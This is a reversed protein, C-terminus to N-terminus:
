SERAPQPQKASLPQPSILHASRRAHYITSPHAGTPTPSRTRAGARAGEQGRSRGRSTIVGLYALVRRQAPRTAAARLPDKGRPRQPRSGRGRGAQATTSRYLSLANDGRRSPSPVASLEGELWVSQAGAFGRPRQRSVMRRLKTSHVALVGFPTIEYLASAGRRIRQAKADQRRKATRIERM